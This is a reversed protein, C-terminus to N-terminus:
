LTPAARLRRQRALQRRRIRSVGLVVLALGGAVFLVILATGPGGGDSGGKTVAAAQKWVLSQSGGVTARLQQKGSLKKLKATFTGGKSVSLSRVTVWRSGQKRQIKLKGAEPSKGWATLTDKSVRETVFPFRFATLSPKPRGDNFYVGAQYGAHADPRTTSDEIQFNIATSAGAKWFLYLSQEIYRAQTQLPAGVPNPPKSDWWFETVWVPHRGQVTGAKEAGRLVTVIRGLDPTSADGPKPGSRLPGSGTNDIPHHSLVDFSPATCGSTRALTTKAKKGKKGKKAKKPHVCLLQQWFLVPQIRAGGPNDGYPETGGAVVLMNPNVSKISKYSANLMDRYREPGVANKGEYQPTIWDSSNVENWVEISQAAPLQPEAGAGDPDFNGSYRAAVAQMFDAVDSPIPKWSFTQVNAPRGPEEAYDPAGNVSFLVKLGRAEADRVAGDVSSFDYSTSGPNTPDAPRTPGASIAPWNVTLRLIGAGADVARGLWLSRDAPVSSQFQDGQFGTVLGRTASAGAPVALAILLVGAIAASLWRALGASRRRRDSSMPKVNGRM